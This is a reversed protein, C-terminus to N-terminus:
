AGGKIGDASQVESALLDSDLKRKLLVTTVSGTKSMGVAEWGAAGHNNLDKLGSREKSGDLDVFTYEFKIM